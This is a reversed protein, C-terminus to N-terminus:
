KGRRQCLLIYLPLVYLYVAFPLAAISSSMTTLPVSSAICWPVLGALNVTANGIDSALELEPQKAERYPTEMLEHTMVISVSQNCLLAATSLSVLCTAPFLGIKGSLQKLKEKLPVLMGTGNFIGSYACSLLVICVVNAMSILGGGSLIERLEPHTVTCGLVCTRLLEPLSMGQLAVSLVAALACSIAISAAASLHLWPLVLLVVAPVVTLWSLDFAEALAALIQGDVREIPFCWSLAGYAALTIALPILTTRWMRKLFTHHDVHSVAAVLIAASSAPSLREGFYAGSMAAGATMLPNAGGTLAIAMLVVGATGAVGFSSGFALCLCAPLLFAVLLFLRPTIITLGTHVFFAITGSARWLATLLGVLVLIRLVILATRGGKAAMGMLSKLSFGRHLGVLVFCFFGLLLAWALARGLVMCALVGGLFIGLALLLDM